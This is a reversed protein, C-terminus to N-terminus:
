IRARGGGDSAARALLLALRDLRPEVQGDVLLVILVLALERAADEVEDVRHIVLVLRVLPEHVLHEVLVRAVELVEAQPRDARRALLQRLLHVGGDEGGRTEALRRLPEVGLEVDRGHVVWGDLWELEREGPRGRLKLRLLLDQERGRM